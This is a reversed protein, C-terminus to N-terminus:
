NQQEDAAAHAPGGVPGTLRREPQEHRPQDRRAEPAQDDEPQLQDLIEVPCLDQERLVLRGRHIQFEPHELRLRCGSREFQPLQLRLHIGVEEEVREVGHRGALIIRLGDLADGAVEGVVQPERESLGARKLRERPFQLGQLFVEGHLLDPEAVIKDATEGAVPRGM